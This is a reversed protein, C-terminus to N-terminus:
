SPHTAPLPAAVQAHCAAKRGPAITLLPPDEVRCVEMVEPCRHQFACGRDTVPLAGVDGAVTARRRRRQRDPDALPVASILAQTYPHAPSHYVDDAPGSEVLRGVFMVAINRSIQRVLLLDHAIFLVSLGLDAQLDALLSVLQAQTSVDLASVPEDCVLVKPRLALARAMAVRQRQGGSMERPYRAAVKADLGVRDLLGVVETALAPAGAALGHARLPEALIDFVSWTPDLSSYPDQFVVQMSRRFEKLAPGRMSLVDAGALRVSGADPPLLRLIMRALTTKGSGSEGVLGFTEGADVGFTVRDVALTRRRRGPLDGHARFSRTLGEVELLPGATM